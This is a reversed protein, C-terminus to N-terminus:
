FWKGRIITLKYDIRELYKQILKMTLLSHYQYGDIKHNFKKFEEDIIM